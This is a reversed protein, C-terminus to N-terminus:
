GRLSSRISGSLANVAEGIVTFEREVSSRISRTSEYTKLDVGHLVLAIADCCGIIDSLYALASRPM